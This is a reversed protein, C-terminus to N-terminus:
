HWGQRTSGCMECRRYLSWRGNKDRIQGGCNTCDGILEGNQWRWLRWTNRTLLIVGLLALAASPWFIIQFVGSMMAALPTSQDDHAACFLMGFVGTATFLMPLAFLRINRMTSNPDLNM